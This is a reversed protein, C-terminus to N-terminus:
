LCTLAVGVLILGIGVIAEKTLPMEGLLAGTLATFLFTLSNVSIVTLTLPLNVVLVMFLVSAAQNFIFPISFSPNTFFYFIELFVRVFFSNEASPTKATKAGRSIFPNTIGWIASVAIVALIQKPELDM